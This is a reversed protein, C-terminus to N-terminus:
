FLTDPRLQICPGSRWQEASLFPYVSQLRTTKVSEGVAEERLAERWLAGPANGQHSIRVEEGEPWLHAGLFGAEGCQPIVEAGGSDEPSFLQHGKGRCIRPYAPVTRFHGTLWLGNRLLLPHSTCFILGTGSHSHGGTEKWGVPSRRHTAELLRGNDSSESGGKM